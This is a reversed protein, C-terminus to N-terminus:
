VDLSKMDTLPLSELYKEPGTCGSWFEVGSTAADTRMSAVLSLFLSQGKTTRIRFQVPFWTDHASYPTYLCCISYLFM